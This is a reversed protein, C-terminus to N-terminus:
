RSRRGEVRARRSWRGTRVRWQRGGGRSAAGNTRTFYSLRAWGPRLKRGASLSRGVEVGLIRWSTQCEGRRVRRDNEAVERGTLGEQGTRRDGAVLRDLQAVAVGVRDDVDLDRRRRVREVRALLADQVGGAADLLEVRAVLAEAGYAGSDNPKPFGRRPPTSGAAPRSREGADHAPAGAVRNAVGPRTLGVPARSARHAADAPRPATRPAARQSRQCRRGAQRRRSSRTRTTRRMYDQFAAQNPQPRGSAHLAPLDDGLEPTCARDGPRRGAAVADAGADHADDFSWAM